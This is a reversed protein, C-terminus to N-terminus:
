IATEIETTIKNTTKKLFSGWRERDRQRERDTETETERVCVSVCVCVCVCVCVITIQPSRSIVLFKFLASM